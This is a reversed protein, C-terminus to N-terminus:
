PLVVLATFHHTHTHRFTIIIHLMKFM